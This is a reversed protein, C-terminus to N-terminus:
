VHIDVAIVHCGPHEGLLRVASPDAQPSRCDHLKGDPTIVGTPTQGKAPLTTPTYAANSWLEAIQGTQLDRYCWADWYPWVYRDRAQFPELLKAVVAGPDAADRPVLVLLPSYM